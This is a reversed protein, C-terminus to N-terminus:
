LSRRKLCFQALGVDLRVFINGSSKRLQHQVWGRSTEPVRTAGNKCPAFRACLLQPEHRIQLQKSVVL